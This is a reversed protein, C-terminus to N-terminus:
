SEEKEIVYGKGNCEPCDIERYMTMSVSEDDHDLEQGIGTGGCAPCKKTKQVLSFRRGQEEESDYQINM